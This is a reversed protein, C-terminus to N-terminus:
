RLPGPRLWGIKEVFFRFQHRQLHILEVESPDIDIILLLHLGLLLPFQRSDPETVLLELLPFSLLLLFSFQNFIDVDLNEITSKKTDGRENCL